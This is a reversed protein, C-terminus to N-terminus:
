NASKMFKKFLQSGNQIAMFYYMGEQLTDIEIEFDSSNNVGLKVIRGNLDIIQWNCNGQNLTVHISSTAPIPYLNIKQELEEINATNTISCACKNKTVNTQVVEPATYTAKVRCKQGLQTNSVNRIRMTYWGDYSVTKTFTLNGTGSVSDIPVCDKDLLIFKLGSTSVEPFVNIIIDSGNKAYVRGVTRCDLSSDPLKGGQQLSVVQKDGLDDAMEWEQTIAKSPRIYNEVIGQPAWVSYGKRGQAATGNCPPISVDVKGGGYVTRQGTGNAGSYDVLITGDSWSTQVGNINQWQDYNDTVAILAKAQREIILADPQQTRVLYAGEKFHLNQHCWILNEIDSRTPLTTDVKPDHSFRNSNYGINFLDEFFIQPAGDVALAIAHAVSNRVDNPEVQTGLAQNWGTYNGQASLQPRFTDHNNVFPVTRQRNSQQAGPISGIDYFGNGTVMGQLSGRLSFDFTGSRNQVANCWNDMDFSGGVWEGVSFMNDTGSAWSANNQLNWLFDEAVGSPFHKVADLRVGDWGMQKKYWIMWDRMGNRMYDATQTPNFIANSSQGFSSSEYAIDPGWFPSNIDNTCCPNSPNPYFNQWNKPFRGKRSLYNSSTENSAPTEYCSYRFNKYKSTEGDEMAVSDQGGASTSGGAGTIHNLVIDQIVDIGNAKMVAMMRLLEDKDGLRTKVSGKQWKDGLDYHDFPAYGVSNTGTNKISPPIWVADIGMQKMRPALETLYNAWGNPYNSNWYDWWFGQLVIQRNTPNVYSPPNPNDSQFNYNGNSSNFTITYTGAPVPINFGDQVGTGSPFSSSGWNIAWTSDQRFKLEENAVFTYNLTWNTNDTSNMNVDGTTWNTFTGIISITQANTFACIWSFILFLLNKLKM